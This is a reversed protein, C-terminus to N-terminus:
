EIGLYTESSEGDLGDCRRVKCKAGEVVQVIAVMVSGVGEGVGREKRSRMATRSLKRMPGRGGCRWCPSELDKLVSSRTGHASEGSGEDGM